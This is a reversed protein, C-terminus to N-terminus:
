ETPLGFLREANGHMILERQEASLDADELMGLTYAPEFLAYDSGFVIKEAGLERVAVGVKDSDICTGCPDIYLNAAERAAAIGEWWADGGMHAMIIPVHPHARAIPVVNWPSELPSTHTHVLVPKGYEAVVRMLAQGDYSSLKQLCYIPHVEVKVGVFKPNRLYEDLQQRSQELDNIAVAVYGFLEPHRAVEGALARNGANLDHTIALASSVIARGIDQRRMTAVMEEPSVEYVPFPWKGLHTHADVIMGM